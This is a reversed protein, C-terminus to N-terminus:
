RISPATKTPGQKCVNGAIRACRIGGGHRSRGGKSAPVPWPLRTGQLSHGPRRWGAAARGSRHSAPPSPQSVQLPTLHASCPEWIVRLAGMVVRLPSDASPNLLLSSYCLHDPSTTPISTPSSPTSEADLILGAWAAMGGGEKRSEKRDDQGPQGWWRSPYTPWLVNLNAAAALGLYRGGPEAGGGRRGSGGM